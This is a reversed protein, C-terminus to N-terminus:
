SQTQTESEIIETGLGGLVVVVVVVLIELDVRCVMVMDGAVGVWTIVEVEGVVGLDVGAVMNVEVVELVQGGMAGPVEM